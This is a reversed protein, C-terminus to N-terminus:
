RGRLACFMLRWTDISLPSLKLRALAHRRAAPINRHKLATWAWQSMETKLSLQQRPPPTWGDPLKGGRRAYADAVCDRKKQEQEAFRTRNTSRLHQRYHLLTQPLNALTGIEGLRLFLDLDEIPVRDTRYGGIQRVAATRMMATPHVIAWGIGRLLETTIKDHETEPQNEYLPSGYPEVLLVRTGVALVEPHEHLYAVQKEFRTPLSIDDSDMRAILPAHAQAIGDNLAGSIGTNPRSIIRIRADRQALKKLISLSHDSSGDDVAILEFDYFTQNLISNVAEDLTAAANFVPMVVSVAPPNSM